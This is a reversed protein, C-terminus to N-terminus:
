IMWSINCMHIQKCDVLIQSGNLQVLSLFLCFIWVNRDPCEFQGTKILVTLDRDQRPIPPSYLM